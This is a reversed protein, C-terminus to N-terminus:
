LDVRLKELICLWIGIWALAFARSAARRLSFRRVAPTATPASAPTPPSATTLACVMGPVLVAIEALEEVGESV